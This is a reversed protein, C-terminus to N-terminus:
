KERTKMQEIHSREQWKSYPIAITTLADENLKLIQGLANYDPKKQTIVELIVDRTKEPSLEPSYRALYAGSLNALVRSKDDPLIDACDKSVYGIQPTGGVGGNLTSVSFANIAYFALEEKSLTAANRGQLEQTFYMNAGDTGSGIEQHSLFLEMYGPERGGNCVNAHRMKNAIKDFSAIIFTAIGYWQSKRGEYKNMLDRTESKVLKKKQREDLFAAAKKAIEEKEYDLFMKDSHNSRQKALNYVAELYSEFTTHPFSDANKLVEDNINADGAALIIGHSNGNQIKARKIAFDTLRAGGSGSQRSDSILFTELGNTLYIGVTM